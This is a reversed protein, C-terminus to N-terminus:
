AAVKLKRGMHWGDFAAIAQMKEVYRDELDMQDAKTMDILNDHMYHCGMLGFHPACLPFCFQDGAKISRGKGYKASNPHAAQSHGEIGCGLCPQSAVYRRYAESRVYNTKPFM